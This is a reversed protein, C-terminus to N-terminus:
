KKKRSKLKEIKKYLEEEREHAADLFEEYFFLSGTAKRLLYFLYLNLAISVLLAILM